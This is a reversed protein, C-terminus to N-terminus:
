TGRPTPPKTIERRETIISDVEEWVRRMFQVDRGRVEVFDLLDQDALGLNALIRDREELPMEQGPSRLAGVRLEVYAQIFAERSIM